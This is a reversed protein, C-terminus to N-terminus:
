RFAHIREEDHMVAWMYARANISQRIDSPGDFPGNAWYWECDERRVEYKNTRSPKFGARTMKYTFPKASKTFFEEGAHHVIRMWVADFNNPM